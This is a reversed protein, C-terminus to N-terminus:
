GTFDSLLQVGQLAKSKIAQEVKNSSASPNHEMKDSSAFPNQKGVRKNQSLEAVRFHPM